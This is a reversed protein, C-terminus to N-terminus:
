KDTMCGAFHADVALSSATSNRKRSAMRVLKTRPRRTSVELAPCRLHGALSAPTRRCQCLWGLIHPSVKPWGQKLTTLFRLLESVAPARSANAHPPVAGHAVDQLADSLGIERPKVRNQSATALSARQPAREAPVSSCVHASGLSQAISNEKLPAFEIGSGVARREGRYRGTRCRTRGDGPRRRLGAHSRRNALVQRPRDSTSAPRPRTGIEAEVTRAVNSTSKRQDRAVGEVRSRSTPRTRHRASEDCAHATSTSQRPM